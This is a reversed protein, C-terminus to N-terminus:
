FKSLRLSISEDEKKNNRVGDDRSVIWLYLANKHGFKLNTTDM